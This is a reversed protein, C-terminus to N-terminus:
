EIFLSARLTSANKFIKYIVSSLVASIIGGLIYVLTQYGFAMGIVNSFPGFASVGCVLAFPVVRLLSAGGFLWRGTALMLLALGESLALYSVVFPLVAASGYRLASAVFPNLEVTQSRLTLAVLTSYLDFAVLALPLVYVYGSGATTLRGFEDADTKINWLGAALSITGVARVAM